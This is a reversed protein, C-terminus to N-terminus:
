TDSGAQPARRAERRRRRRFDDVFRLFALAVGFALVACAVSFGRFHLPNDDEGVTKAGNTDAINTGM